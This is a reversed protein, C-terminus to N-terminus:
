INHKLLDSIIHQSRGANLDAFRHSASFLVYACLRRPHLFLSAFPRRPTWLKEAQCPAIAELCAPRIMIPRCTTRPVCGLEGVSRPALPGTAFPDCPSAILFRAGRLVGAQLAISAFGPNSGPTFAKCAEAKGSPWAATIHFSGISVVPEEFAISRVVPSSGAVGVKALNHEVLQAM